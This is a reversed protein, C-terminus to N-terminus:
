RCWHCTTGMENDKTSKDQDAEPPKRDSLFQCARKLHEFTYCEHVGDAAQARHLNYLKPGVDLQRGQELMSAYEALKRQGYTVAHLPVLM